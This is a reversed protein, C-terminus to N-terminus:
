SWARHTFPLHGSQRHEM